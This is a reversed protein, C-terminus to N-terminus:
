GTGILRPRRNIRERRRDPHDDIVVPALDHPDVTRTRAAGDTADRLRLQLALAVLLGELLGDFQRGALDM